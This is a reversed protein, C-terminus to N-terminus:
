LPTPIGALHGQIGDLGLKRILQKEAETEVNEAIVRIDVSHATDALAQVMFQHDQEKNIHRIYSGDIKLYHVRLSRLYSFSSFGRGFHDIGCACGYAALRDCLERATHIDRLLAYESFEFALRPAHDPHKSLRDCLWNAFNGDLLSGSSLNVAHVTNVLKGSVTQELVQEIVMRDIAGSQGTHEAMPMFLGASLLEGRGDPIRLLIERHLLAEPDGSLRVVPQSYLTIHGKQIVQGLHERWQEIDQPLTKGDAPPDLRFWTNSGGARAAHLAADAEALVRSLTDEPKWLAVGIHAFGTDIAPDDAHLQLMDKALTRALTDVCHPDIGAVVIGFSAGSLRAAFGHRLSNIRNEILECARCLLRDGGQHGLRRNIDDLGRLELLMVAGRTVDDRSEILNQLQRKFYHRNGLGTVSDRFAQARLRETLVAQRTFAQNVRTSLRNMAEVVRRLERTRPLHEQVPYTRNCIAEAQAEVRGLPKLLMRVALLGLGLVLLAIVLFLWFTDIMNDWLELYAHGPNSSVRVSAAQKWGAMVSAEGVPTELRLNRTFWKPVGSVIVQQSREILPNGDIDIVSISRYDGRDFVADIMSSMLALDNHQIQPGLSLAMSTATDQAHSGLQATIFQRLNYTSVTVTGLFGTLFLLIIVFAFQRYLTM